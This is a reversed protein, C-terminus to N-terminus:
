MLKITDCILESLDGFTSLDVKENHTHEGYGIPGCSCLTPTGAIVTYAADSGGGKIIGKFEDMGLNKAAVNWKELLQLNKDVVMMPPRKSLVKVTRRTNKVVSKQAFEYMTQEAKQMEEM